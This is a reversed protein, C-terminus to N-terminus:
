SYFLIKQMLLCIYFEHTFCFALGTKLVQVNVLFSFSDLGFQFQIQYEEDEVVVAIIVFVQLKGLPARM